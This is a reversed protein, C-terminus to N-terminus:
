ALPRQGFTLIFPQAMRYQAFEQRAQLLIRDFEDPSVALGSTIVPKLANIAGVVDTQMM